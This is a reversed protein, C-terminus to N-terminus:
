PRVSSPSSVSRDPDAVVLWRNTLGVPARGTAIVVYLPLMTTMVAAASTILPLKSPEVGSIQTDGNM